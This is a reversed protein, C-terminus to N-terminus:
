PSRVRFFNVGSTSNTTFTGSYNTAMLNTALTTWATLNTSAEVRYTQGPVSQWNLSVNTGSRLFSTTNFPKYFPNNFMMLVPLHDSAIKDDNSFLNPPVPFLKDTRFVQSGAINSFMLACPMIYDFRVTLRTARISETMDNSVSLDYINTPTTLRLGTAPAIM